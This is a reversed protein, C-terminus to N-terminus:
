PDDDLGLLNNCSNIEDINKSKSICDDIKKYLSIREQYFIKKSQKVEDFTMYVKIKDKEEPRIDENVQPNPFSIEEGYGVQPLSLFLLIQFFFIKRM